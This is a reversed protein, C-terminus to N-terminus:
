PPDPAGATTGVTVTRSGPTFAAFSQEWPPEGPWHYGVRGDAAWRGDSGDGVDLATFILRRSM